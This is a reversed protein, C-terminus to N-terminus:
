LHPFTSLILLKQLFGVALNPAVRSCHRERGHGPYQPRPRLSHHSCSAAVGCHTVMSVTRVGSGSVESLHCIRGSNQVSINKSTLFLINLFKIINLLTFKASSVEDLPYVLVM